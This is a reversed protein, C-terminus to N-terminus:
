ANQLKKRDIQMQEGYLKQVKADNKLLWTKAVAVKVGEKSARAEALKQIEARPSRKGKTAAVPDAAPDTEIDPDTDEIETEPNEFNGAAIADAAKLSDFIRARQAPDTIVTHIAKVLDLGDDYPSTGDKAAGRKFALHKFSEAAVKQYTASDRESRAKALEAHTADQEKAMDAMDRQSQRYSKGTRVSKYVEPDLDLAMKVDADRETNTKAVFEIRAAKALTKYHALQPESMTAIVDLGREATDARKTLETITTATNETTAM